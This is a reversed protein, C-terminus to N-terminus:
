APFVMIPGCGFPNEPSCIDDIDSALRALRRRTEDYRAPDKVAHADLKTLARNIQDRMDSLRLEGPAAPARKAPKRAAAKKRAGGRASARTAMKRKPTTKSATKTKKAM